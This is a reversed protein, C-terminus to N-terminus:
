SKGMKRFSYFKRTITPHNALDDAAYAQVINSEVDWKEVTKQFGRVHKRSLKALTQEIDQPSFGSALKFVVEFIVKREQGSAHRGGIATPRGYAGL